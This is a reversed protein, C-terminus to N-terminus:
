HTFQEDTSAPETPLLDAPDCGLGDALLRLTAYPIRECQEEVAKLQNPTITQRIGTARECANAIADVLDRTSWGRDHRRRRVSLGDPRVPETEDFTM